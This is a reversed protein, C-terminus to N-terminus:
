PEFKRIEVFAGDRFEIIGSNYESKIFPSDFLLDRYYNVVKGDIKPPENNALNLELLPSGEGSGRYQLIFWGPVVTKLLKLETNLVDDIFIEFSDHRGVHSTDIILGSLANNAVAITRDKNWQYNDTRLEELLEENAAYDLFSVSEQVGDGAAYVAEVIRVAAYANGEHAFIWGDKEVITDVKNSFYVGMQVPATTRRPFWEPERREYGRSQQSLMVHEDQVTRYMIGGRPLLEWDGSNGKQVGYPFIRADPHTSFNLGYSRSAPSLHSHVAFPHDHQAGLVYHPTIWSYRFMRHETSLDLTRELGAKRPIATPEEGITRTILAFDGKAERDFAFRWVVEPFHYDSAGLWYYRAPNHNIVGGFLFKGMQYMSDGRVDLVTPDRTKAGGRFGNITELAWEAWVVDLFGATLERLAEHSTFAHLDKLYSLTYNMYGPSAHELFLGKHLREQMIDRLVIGWAEFHDEARYDGGDSLKANGPPGYFYEAGHMHFWYGPGGGRGANPYIRDRYDPHEKFMMSSLYNYVVGNLDHNESGDMWWPNRHRAWHIDNKDKTLDWLKDLIMDETKKSLRNNHLGEGPGFTLYTRTLWPAAFLSWSFAFAGHGGLDEREGSLHRQIETNLWNLDKGLWLGAYLQEHTPKERDMGSYIAKYLLAERMQRTGLEEAKRLDIPKDTIGVEKGDALDIFRVDDFWLSTGALFDVVVFLESVQLNEGVVIDSFDLLPIEVEVWESKGMSVFDLPYHHSEGSKTTVGLMMQEVAKGEPVDIALWFRVAVNPSLEWFEALYPVFGVKLPTTANQPYQFQISYDGSVKNVTDNKFFAFGKGALLEEEFLVASRVLDEDYWAKVVPFEETLQACLGCLFFPLGFFFVPFCKM